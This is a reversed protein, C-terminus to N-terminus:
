LATYRVTFYALSSALDQAVGGDYTTAEGARSSNPILRVYVKDQGLAEDPLECSVHKYGCLQWYRTDNWSTVDPVTYEGAKKWQSGNTSWEVNWYRPAGIARNLVAFQV